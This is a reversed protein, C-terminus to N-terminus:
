RGEVITVTIDNASFKSPSAESSRQHVIFAPQEPHPLDVIESSLMSLITSISPRDQAVEQVCLLGVNAYRLIKPEMQPDFILPDMLNIM